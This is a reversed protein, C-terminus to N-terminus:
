GKQQNEAMENRRVKEIVDQAAVRTKRLAEYKSNDQRVITIASGILIITGVRLSELSLHCTDFRSINHPINSLRSYFYSVYRWCIIVVANACHEEYKKPLSDINDGIILSYQLRYFSISFELNSEKLIFYVNFMLGLAVVGSKNGCFLVIICRCM